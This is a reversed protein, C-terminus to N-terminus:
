QVMSTYWGMDTANDFLSGSTAGSTTSSSGATPTNSLTYLQMLNGVGSGISDWTGKASNAATNMLNGFTNAASGSSSVAQGPLGRGINAVQLRQNFLNTASDQWAQGKANTRNIDLNLLSGKELGSGYQYRGGMTRKLNGAQNAYNRDVQALAQKTGAQQELPKSAETVMKNELPAFKSM